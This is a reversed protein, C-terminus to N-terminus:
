QGMLNPILKFGAFLGALCWISIILMQLDSRMKHLLEVEDPQLDRQDSGVEQDDLQNDETEDGSGSGLGSDENSGQDQDGANQGNETTIEGSDNIEEGGDYSNNETESIDSEAQNGLTDNEYEYAHSNIGWIILSISLYILIRILKRKSFVARIIRMGMLLM